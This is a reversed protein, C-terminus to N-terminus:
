LLKAFRDRADHIASLIIRDAINVCLAPPELTTLFCYICMRVKSLSVTPSAASITQMVVLDDSCCQLLSAGHGLAAFSPAKFHGQIALELDALQKASSGVHLQVAAAQLQQLSVPKFGKGAHMDAVQPM